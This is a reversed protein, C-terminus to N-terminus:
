TRDVANKGCPCEAGQMEEGCKECYDEPSYWDGDVWVSTSCCPRHVDTWEKCRRCIGHLDKANTMRM